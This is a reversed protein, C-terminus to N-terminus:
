KVHASLLIMADRDQQVFAEIARRAEAPILSLITLASVQLFAEEEEPAKQKRDYNQKKLVAIARESADVSEM